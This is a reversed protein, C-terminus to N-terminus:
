RVATGAGHAGDTGSGGRGGDIEARDSVLPRGGKDVFAADVRLFKQEGSWCHVPASSPPLDLAEPPPSLLLDLLALWSGGPPSDQDAMREDWAPDRVSVVQDCAPLVILALAAAM